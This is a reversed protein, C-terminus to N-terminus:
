LEKWAVVVHKDVTEGNITEWKKGEAAYQRSDDVFAIHREGNRTIITFRKELYDTPFGENFPFGDLDLIYRDTRSREKWNPSQQKPM